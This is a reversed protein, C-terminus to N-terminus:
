HFIKWKRPLHLNEIELNWYHWVQSLFVYLASFDKIHLFAGGLQPDIFFMTM